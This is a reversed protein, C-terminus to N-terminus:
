TIEEIALLIANTGKGAHLLQRANLLMMKKGIGPFDHEVKFNEM